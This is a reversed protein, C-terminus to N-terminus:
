WKSEHYEGNQYVFLDGKRAIEYLSDPFDIEEIGEIEGNEKNNLDYLWIRGSYKEGVEYIHGDIRKSRLYQTQEEIKQKIMKNIKGNVDNTSKIDLLFVGNQKRLINGLRSEKPLESIKKTIVKYSNELSCNWLNYTNENNNNIDYIYLMEGKEKTKIAYDQLINVRENLIEDKYRAIVKNNYLTLNDSSLNNWEFNIKETKSNNVFNNELFDSLEKIFNKM